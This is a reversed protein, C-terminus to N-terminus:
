ARIARLVARLVAVPLALLVSGAALLAAMGILNGVFTRVWGCLFWGGPNPITCDFPTGPTLLVAGVLGVAAFAVVGLAAAWGWRVPREERPADTAEVERSRESM